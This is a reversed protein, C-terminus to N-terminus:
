ARPPTQGAWEEWRDRRPFHFAFLGLAFALFLYFDASSGSVLFLVLGFVGVSECLAFTVISATQLQRGPGLGAAQPALLARRLVRILGADALALALFIWRLMEWWPVQVFGRFPASQRKILEVLMAYIVLSSVMAIAIIRTARFYQDFAVM